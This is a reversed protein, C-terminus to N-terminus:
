PTLIWSLMRGPRKKSLASGNRKLFLNNWSEFQDAFTTGPDKFEDPSGILRAQSFDLGVWVM